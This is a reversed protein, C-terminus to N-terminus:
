IHSFNAHFPFMLGWSLVSLIISNDHIVNVVTLNPTASLYSVTTTTVHM